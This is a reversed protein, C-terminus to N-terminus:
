THHRKRAPKVLHEAIGRQDAAQETEAAQRRGALQGRQASGAHRAACRPTPPRRTATSITPTTIMPSVAPWPAVLLRLRHLQAHLEFPLRPAVLLPRHARSPVADDVGLPLM